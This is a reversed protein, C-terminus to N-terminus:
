HENTVKDRPIHVNVIPGCQLFLEWVLDENIKLDLNGVYV